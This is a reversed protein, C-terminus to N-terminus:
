DRADAEFKQEWLRKKIEALLFKDQEIKAEVEVILAPVNAPHRDCMQSLLKLNKNLLKVSDYKEAALADRKIADAMADDFQHVSEASRKLTELSGSLEALRKRLGAKMQMVFDYEERYNQVDDRLAQMRQAFKDAAADDGWLYVVYARAAKRNFTIEPLKFMKSDFGKTATSAENEGITDMQGIGGANAVDTTRTANYRHSSFASEKLEIGKLYRKDCNGLGIYPWQDVDVQPFTTTCFPIDELAKNGADQPAGDEGPGEVAGGSLAKKYVDPYWLVSRGKFETIHPVGIAKLDESPVVPHVISPVDANVEHGLTAFELLFDGIMLIITSIREESPHEKSRYEDLSKVYEEVVDYTPRSTEKHAVKSNGGDDYKDKKIINTTGYSEIEKKPVRTLLSWTKIFDAKFPRTWWLEFMNIDTLCNKVKSWSGAVELHYPLAVLKRAGTPLQSFYRAMLQHWRILNDRSCIYKEYVVERYIEHSFSHMQSVCMSFEKLIAVLKSQDQSDISVSTVMKIVGWIEDETLGTRSVYVITFIKGLLEMKAKEDPSSTGGDPFVAQCCINLNKDVLEHATSCHLFTELLQDISSNTLKSCMSVAQLLSRLYMPQSTVPASIIKFTQQETLSIYSKNMDLFRNIVNSRIQQNLPEIRLLPCNRRTLEVFSRHLSVEQSGRPVRDMEVTSLIFRVCPPLETPLWHLAGDPMGESVIRNVGDIIIIVRSPNHKKSANQLFRGLSWRLEEESDPVKMERLQYFEKLKTELRSLTHALNLSPTTCGVFHQFLFEDRHLHERRKEVWNSLLASKGSGDNGVVVLPLKVDKDGTDAHQDLTNFLSEKTPVFVYQSTRSAAFAEHEDTAGGSM